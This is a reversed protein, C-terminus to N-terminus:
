PEGEPQAAALAARVLRATHKYAWAASDDANISNRQAAIRCAQQVVAEVAAVVREAARREREAVETAIVQQSLKFRRETDWAAKWEEVETRLEAVQAPPLYGARELSEAALRAELMPRHDEQEEWMPLYERKPANKGIRYAEYVHPAILSIADDPWQAEDDGM